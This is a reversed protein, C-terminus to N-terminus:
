TNNPNNKQNFRSSKEWDIGGHKDFVDQMVLVPISGVPEYEISEDDKPHAATCYPLMLEDYESPFGFEVKEWEWGFVMYGNESQAYNGWHFQLSVYFGDKAHMVPLYFFERDYKFPSNGM